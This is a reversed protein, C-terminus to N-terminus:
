WSNKSNGSTIGPLFNFTATSLDQGHQCNTTLLRAVSVSILDYPVMGGYDVEKALLLIIRLAEISATFMFSVCFFMDSALM